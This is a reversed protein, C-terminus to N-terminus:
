EARRSQVVTVQFESGDDMRVVFGANMTMTGAAEFDTVRRVGDMGAVASQMANNFTHEDM